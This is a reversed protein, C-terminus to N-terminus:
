TSSFKRYQFDSSVKFDGNNKMFFFSAALIYHSKWQILKIWPALLYVIIVGKEGNGYKQVYAGKVLLYIPLLVCTSIHEM